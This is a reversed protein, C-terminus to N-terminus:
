QPYYLQQALTRDLFETRSAGHKMLHILEKSYLIPRLKERYGSLFIWVPINLMSIFIEMDTAINEVIREMFVAGCHIKHRTGKRVFYGLRQMKRWQQGYLIPPTRVTVWVTQITGGAAKCRRKEAAAPRNKGM